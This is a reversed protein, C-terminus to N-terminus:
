AFPDKTAPKANKEARHCDVCLQRFNDGNHGSVYMTCGAAYSIDCGYCTAHVNTIICGDLAAGGRAVVIKPLIIEGASFNPADTEFFLIIDDDAAYVRLWDDFTPAKGHLDKYTVEAAAIAKELEGICAGFGGSTAGPVSWEHRVITRTRHSYTAM